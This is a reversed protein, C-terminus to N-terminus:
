AKKVFLEVWFDYVALFVCATVFLILDVHPVMIVLPLLFVILGTLALLALIKESM